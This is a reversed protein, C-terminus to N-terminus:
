IPTNWKSTDFALAKNGSNKFEFDQRIGVRNEGLPGIAEAHFDNLNLTYNALRTQFYRRLYSNCEEVIQECYDLKADRDDYDDKSFQAIIYYSGMFNKWVNDSRNDEYHFDYTALLMFPDQLTDRTNQLMEEIDMKAFPAASMIMRVFHMADATHGIMKNSTAMTRFLTTYDLRTM